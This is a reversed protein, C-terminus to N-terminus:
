HSKIANLLIVVKIRLIGNEFLHSFKNDTFDL